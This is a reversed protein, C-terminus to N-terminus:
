AHMQGPSRLAAASRMAVHVPGDMVAVATESMYGQFGLFVLSALM